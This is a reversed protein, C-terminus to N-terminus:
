RKGHTVLLDVVFFGANSALAVLVPENQFVNRTGSLFLFLCLFDNAM